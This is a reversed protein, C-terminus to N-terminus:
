KKFSAPVADIRPLRHLPISPSTGSTMDRRGSPVDRIRAEELLPELWVLLSQSLIKRPRYRQVIGLGSADTPPLDSRRRHRGYAAPSKMERSSEDAASASNLVPHDDSNILRKSPGLKGSCGGTLPSAENLGRAAEGATSGGGEDAGARGPLHLDCGGADIIRAILHARMRREGITPYRRLILRGGGSALSAGFQFNRAHDTSVQHRRM